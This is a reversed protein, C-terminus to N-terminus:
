AAAVTVVAAYHTSAAALVPLNGLLLVAMVVIAIVSTLLTGTLPIRRQM